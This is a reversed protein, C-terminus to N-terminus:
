NSSLRARSRASFARHGLVDREKSLLVTERKPKGYEEEKEKEKEKV